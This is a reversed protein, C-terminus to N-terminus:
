DIRLGRGYQSVERHMAAGFMDKMTSEERVGGMICAM